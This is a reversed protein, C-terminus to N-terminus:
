NLTQAYILRSTIVKIFFMHYLAVSDEYKKVAHGEYTANKGNYHILINLTLTYMNFLVHTLKLFVVLKFNAHM